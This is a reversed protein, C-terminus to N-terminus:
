GQEWLCSALHRPVGAEAGIRVGKLYRNYLSVGSCLLSREGRKNYAKQGALDDNRARTKFFNFNM